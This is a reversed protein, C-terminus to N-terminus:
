KSALTKFIWIKVTLKLKLHQHSNLINPHEGSSFFFRDDALKDFIKYGDAFLVKVISYNNRIAAAMIVEQVNM